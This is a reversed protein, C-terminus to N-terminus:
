FLTIDDKATAIPTERMNSREERELEILKPNYAMDTPTLKRILTRGSDTFFLVERASYGGLDQSLIPITETQLFGLAFRINIQPVNGDSERMRLVHGGGFVKAELRRRDAGHNM